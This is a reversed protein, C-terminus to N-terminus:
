NGVNEAGTVLQEVGGLRALTLFTGNLGSIKIKYNQEHAYNVWVLIIALHPSTADDWASFNFETVGQDIKTKGMNKLTTCSLSYDLESLSWIM